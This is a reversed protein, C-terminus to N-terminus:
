DGAWHKQSPSPKRTPSFCVDVSLLHKASGMPDDDGQNRLCVKTEVKRGIFYAGKRFEQHIINFCEKEFVYYHWVFILVHINVTAHNM